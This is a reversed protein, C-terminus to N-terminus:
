YDLDCIEEQILRITNLLEILNVQNIVLSIMLIPGQLMNRDKTLRNFLGIHLM